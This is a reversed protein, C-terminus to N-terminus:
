IGLEKFISYTFKERLPFHKGQKKEEIREIIMNYAKQKERKLYEKIDSLKVNINNEKAYKLKNKIVAKISFYDKKFYRAYIKNFIKKNM